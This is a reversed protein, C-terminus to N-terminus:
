RPASSDVEQSVVGGGGGAGQAQFKIDAGDKSLLV